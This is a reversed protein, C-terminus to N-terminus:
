VLIIIRKINGTHFGFTKVLISNVPQYRLRLKEIAIHLLNCKFLNRKTGTFEFRKAISEYSVFDEFESKKECNLMPAILINFVDDCEKSLKYQEVRKLYPNTQVNHFSCNLKKKLLFM